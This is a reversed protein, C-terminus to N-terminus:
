IEVKTDFVQEYIEIDKAYKKRVMEEIDPTYMSSSNPFSNLKRLDKPYTDCYKKDKDFNGYNIRHAPAVETEIHTNLKEELAKIAPTLNEFQGIFDFELLGLGLYIYQPRWHPDLLRDEKDTLFTVFQRFTISQNQDPNEGLSKYVRNIVSISHRNPKPSRVFKDIYASVLRDLPNRLIVFKFNKSSCLSSFEQAFFKDKNANIYRHVAIKSKRYDEGSESHNVLINKFLSCANKEIPSYVINYKSNILFRLKLWQEYSRNAADIEGLQHQAHMLELYLKYGLECDFELAKTYASIANSWQHQRRFKNGGTEHLKALQKGATVNHRDLELVARCYPIAEGLKGETELQSAITLLQNVITDKELISRSNEVQSSKM